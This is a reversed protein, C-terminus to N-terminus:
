RRPRRSPQMRRTQRQRHRCPQIVDIGWTSLVPKLAPRSCSTPSSRKSGAVEAFHQAQLCPCSLVPVTYTRGRCGDTSVTAVPLTRGQKKRVWRSFRSVQSVAGTMLPHPPAETPPCRQLAAEICTWITTPPARQSSRTWQPPPPPLHPGCSRPVTRPCCTDNLVIPRDDISENKRLQLLLDM